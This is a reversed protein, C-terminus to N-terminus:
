NQSRTEVLKWNPDRSRVDRRFTWIDTIENVHSPDGDLIRGESDRTVNIQETLFSVTVAADGDVLDAEVIQASRTGIITTELVHGDAKRQEIADSFNEYVDESLLDRLTDADGEAFAQVIVDFAGRAGKLFEDPDFARDANRISAIGQSIPDDPDVYEDEDAPDEDAADRDAAPPESARDDPARDDPPPAISRPRQHGTRKGLASRLRLVLFAAVMAFLVIDLFQFGDSM